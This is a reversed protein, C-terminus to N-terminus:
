TMFQWQCPYFSGLASTARCVTDEWDWRPAGLSACPPTIGKGLSVPNPSPDHGSRQM